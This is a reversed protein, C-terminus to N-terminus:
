DSADQDAGLQLRLAKPFAGAWAKWGHRGKFVFFHHPVQARELHEHFRENSGLIGRHDRTAAGFVLRSGGLDRPSSLAEYPDVAPGEEGTGFIREFIEESVFRALFEKTEEENLIPASLITASDFRSPESLWMQLGGGGGMSVGVLHLNEPLLPYRSRVDPVVEDLVWDRFRHSGDEWNVWFGLEGRPTVMIFPPLSGEGIAHDLTEVVRRRDASTEDDRAGHLLVVLPLESRGDWRSRPPLYVGYSLTRGEAESALDHYVFRGYPRHCAGVCVLTSAILTLVLRRQAKAIM